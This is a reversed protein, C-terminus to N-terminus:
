NDHNETNKQNTFIDFGKQTIREGFKLCREHALSGTLPKRQSIAGFHIIPEGFSIGSSYVLMGCVLLEAILSMAAFSAGGGGPQNQSIFVGGLKGSLSKPHYDLFQKIQWCCNGSYTPSGFLVVESNQIFGDDIADVSMLKVEVNNHSQCGEAIIEAMAKTNGTKSFYVISIYM